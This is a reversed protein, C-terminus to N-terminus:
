TKQVWSYTITEKKEVEIFDLTQVGDEYGYDEYGYRLLVVECNFFREENKLKLIYDIYSANEDLSNEIELVVFIENSFLTIEDGISTDSLSRHDELNLKNNIM